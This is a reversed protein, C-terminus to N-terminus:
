PDSGEVAEPTPKSRHLFICKVMRIPAQASPVGIVAGGTQEYRRALNEIFRYDLRRFSLAQSCAYEIAASSHTKALRFLGQLRRFFRLPEESELLEHIVGAFSGGIQDAQSKMSRIDLRQAILKQEPYHGPNTSFEGRKTLRPHAAISEHTSSNYVEVLQDTIKVRVEQGIYRYPVSYFNNMVQVHCDQHVKASKYEAREFPIGPLPRLASKEDAFRERRTLGTDKMRDTNLEELYAKFVQNLEHLSYFVRNRNSAFFQRQIVGITAEIAPKDRPTAPRAPIVVFGMYRSYDFYRPNLIPDYQHAEHVGSKLNDVVVVKPVGGFYAFCRNQSAIFESGRQTEVFEGYVYDSAASVCVFLHTKKTRGTKPDTILFGDCYDIEFREGPEYHFRIRAKTAPDIEVRARLQRWFRLYQVEPAWEQWLAKVTAYPKSLEAEIQAWPLGEAWHGPSIPLIPDPSPPNGSMTGGAEPREQHRCIGRVTEVGIGLSAAIKKKGMGQARLRAVEQHILMHTRDGIM